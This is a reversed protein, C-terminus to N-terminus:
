SSEDLSQGSLAELQNIRDELLASLINSCAELEMIRKYLSIGIEISIHPKRSRYAKNLSELAELHTPINHMEFSYFLLLM